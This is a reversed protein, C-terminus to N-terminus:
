QTVQFTQPSYEPHARLEQLIKKCQREYQPYLKNFRYVSVDQGILQWTGHLTQGETPHNNRLYLQFGENRTDHWKEINKHLFLPEGELDSQVMTTGQYMGDSGMHGIGGTRHPNMYFQTGMSMWALLFLNKDGHAYINTGQLAPLRDFCEQNLLVCLTLAKECTRRNLLIQGSEQSWHCAQRTQAVHQPDMKDVLIGDYKMPWFDPWFITQYKRYEPTDFLYTPDRLCNNDADLFLIEDFGSCWLSVPKVTFKGKIEFPCYDALNHLHVGPIDNILQRAFPPIEGPLYWMEIPLECGLQRLMRIMVYACTFYCYGGAVTVIGRGGKFPRKVVPILSDSHLQLLNVLAETDVHKEQGEKEEELRATMASVESEQYTRPAGTTGRSLYHALAPVWALPTLPSFWTLLDTNM